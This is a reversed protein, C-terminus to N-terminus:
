STAGAALKAKVTRRDLGAIRGTEVYSGTRDYIMRLYAAVLDDATLRCALMDAVLDGPPENRGELRPEYRGRILVNRVCQELERVNGPWDYSAGLRKKIWTHTRAALAPGEDDGAVGRALHGLLPELHDLRGGLQEALSPTRVIDSCLRYYFDERLRGARM